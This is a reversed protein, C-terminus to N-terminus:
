PGTTGGDEEEPTILWVNVDDETMAFGSMLMLKAQEFTMEGKNYKKVIRQIGQLQRASLNKLNENVKQEQPTIEQQGPQGPTAPVTSAILTVNPFNKKIFERKEETTLVEWFKDQLDVPESVPNFNVIEVRAQTPVCWNPLLVENYFQMLLNQWETVRSQMLEVAKQIESGGSGLSVGESINALISPVGTAITLNKTTLNQLAIFLDSNTNTPFPQIKQIENQNLAWQVMVNGAKKSGSFSDSMMDNFEEGVTKTTRTKKVGLEDTYTEQLRPNQSWQNPDGIVTMLVSQFFGNDLNEAHFEQIKADIEIWKKAAWYDPVPYFRYLPKTKGYYAQGKYENLALQYENKVNAIDFVPYECTFDKKYQDTGIYPNYIITKIDPDKDDKPKKFRCSELELTYANTIKGDINYKFNVAFGEFISLSDALWCHLDWLTQGQKNIKMKMLGKDSFSSGKIFQSITKLCASTAPSEQVLKAIRLPLADDEGYIITGEYFNKQNVTSPQRKLNQPKSRSFNTPYPSSFQRGNGENGKKKPKRV